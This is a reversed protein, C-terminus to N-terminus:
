VADGSKCSVVGHRSQKHAAETNREVAERSARVLTQRMRQANAARFEHVPEHGRADPLLHKLRALGIALGADVVLHGLLAEGIHPGPDEPAVHEPRHAAGPGVLAPFAPPAVLRGVVHRNEHQGVM